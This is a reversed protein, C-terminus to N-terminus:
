RTPKGPVQPRLPQPRGTGPLSSGAAWADLVLTPGLLRARPASSMEGPGTKQAEARDGFVSSVAVSLVALGLFVAIAVVAFAVM